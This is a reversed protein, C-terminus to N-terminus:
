INIYYRSECQGENSYTVHLSASSTCLAATVRLPWEFIVDGCFDDNKSGGGGRTVM